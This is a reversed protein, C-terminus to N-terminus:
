AFWRPFCQFGRRQSGMMGARCSSTQFPVQCRQSLGVEVRATAPGAIAALLFSDGERRSRSSVARRRSTPSMQPM